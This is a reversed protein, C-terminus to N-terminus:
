LGFLFVHLQRLGGITFSSRGAILPDEIGMRQAILHGTVITLPHGILGPMGGVLIDRGVMPNRFDGALIRTWGTVARSCQARFLVGKQM